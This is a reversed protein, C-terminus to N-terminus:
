LLFPTVRYWSVFTKCLANSTIPILGCSQLVCEKLIPDAIWKDIFPKVSSSMLVFPRQFNVEKWRYIRMLDVYYITDNWSKRIFYPDNTGTNNVPRM